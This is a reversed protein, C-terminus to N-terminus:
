QAGTEEVSKLIERLAAEGTAASITEDRAQALFAELGTHFAIARDVEANSGPKYAGIRIMERMDDYVSALARAQRAAEHVGPGQVAGSTRSVSKLIDIAPFRGREAIRRDLM